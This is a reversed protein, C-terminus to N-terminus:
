GYTVGEHTEGALGRKLCSFPRHLQSQTNSRLAVDDKAPVPMGHNGSHSFIMSLDGKDLNFKM